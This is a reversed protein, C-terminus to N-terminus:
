SQLRSEGSALSSKWAIHLVFSPLLVMGALFMMDLLSPKNHMVISIIERLGRWDHARKAKLAVKTTL